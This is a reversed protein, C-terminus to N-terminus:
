ALEGQRRGRGEQAKFEWRMGYLGVDDVGVGGVPAPIADIRELLLFLM